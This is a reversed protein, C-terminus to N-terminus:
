CLHLKGEIEEGARNLSYDPFSFIFTVDASVSFFIQSELLSVLFPVQTQLKLDEQLWIM